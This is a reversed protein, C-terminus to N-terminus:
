GRVRWLKTLPANPFVAPPHQQPPFSSTSPPRHPTTYLWLKGQNGSEVLPLVCASGVYSWFAAQITGLAFGVVV